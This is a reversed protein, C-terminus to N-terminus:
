LTRVIGVPHLHGVEASLPDHLLELRETRLRPDVEDFNIGLRYLTPQCAGGSGPM